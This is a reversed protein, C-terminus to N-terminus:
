IENNGYLMKVIEQRKRDAEEALFDKSLKVNSATPFHNDKIEKPPNQNTSSNKSYKLKLIDQTLTPSKLLIFQSYSNDKFHNFTNLFNTFYIVTGEREGSLLHYSRIKREIMKVAESGTDIEIYLTDTETTITLDPILAKDKPKEREILEIQQHELHQLCLFLTRILLLNHNRLKIGGRSNAVTAFPLSAVLRNAKNSLYLLGNKDNVYGRRKLSSLYFRTNPTYGKIIAQFERSDLPPTFSLATLLSNLLLSNNKPSQFIFM